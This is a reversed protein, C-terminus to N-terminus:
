ATLLGALCATLFAALSGGVVARLGFIALEGKRRPALSGIGGIQIAISSFNAFGCLAYSMILLTRPTLQPGLSALEQYAIFENIVVKKGILSAAVFIDQSPIGLFFAIPTFLWGLILSLSLQAQGEKLFFEPSLAVGWQSFGIWNGIAGLIADAMAILAIFALLMGAVNIALKVGESAGNAAAEIVNIHEKKSEFPVKGLTEPEQLEPVMIKAIMLAAPASIISAALLHGGIGPVHPELLIVYAGLVAGAVTAMGGTM